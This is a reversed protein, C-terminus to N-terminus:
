SFLCPHCCDYKEFSKFVFTLLVTLYIPQLLILTVSMFDFVGLILPIKVVRVIKKVNRNIKIYVLTIVKM